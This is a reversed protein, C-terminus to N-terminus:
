ISKKVECSGAATDKGPGGICVDHGPGGVLRDKGKGGSLRDDGSGGLLKDNGPGGFEEDHGAQGDLIDPGKQGVLQDTLGPGGCIGDPGDGGRLQDSGKLGLIGDAGASPLMTAEDSSDAGDTGVLNVLVKHCSVQEYAGIDCRKGLKRPAGRADVDPCQDSGPDGLNLANSGHSLSDTLLQPIPGGNFMPTSIGPIVPSVSTGLQDGTVAHLGCGTNNGIINYGDSHFLGQDMDDLCDPDNGDGSAIDSNAGLISNHLEVSATFGSDALASIGGGQPASNLAITSDFILVSSNHARLAGGSRAGPNGGGGSNAVSNGEITTNFILGGGGALYLGGGFDGGNQTVFSGRLILQGGLSAIAGGFGATNSDFVSNDVIADGDGAGVTPSPLNSEVAGGFGFDTGNNHFNVQDLMVVGENFIAGGHGPLVPDHVADPDRAHNQLVEGHHMEFTAGPHVRVGGGYEGDIGDVNETPAEGFGISVNKLTTFRNDIEMVRDAQDQVIRADDGNTTQITVNAAIDLDGQVNGVAGPINLEYSGPTLNITTHDDLFTNANRIAGRLTCFDNTCVTPDGDSSTTVNVTREAANGPPAFAVVGTACVAVCAWALRWIRIQVRMPGM